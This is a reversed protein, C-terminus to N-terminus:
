RSIVDAQRKRSTGILGFAAIGAFALPALLPKEKEKTEQEVKQTPHDEDEDELIHFYLGAGAVLFSTLLFIHFARIWKENWLVVVLFGICTGIASFVVPVFSWPEKSLIDWHELILDATLFAFGFGVLLVLLRNITYNKLM